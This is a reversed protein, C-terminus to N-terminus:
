LPRERIVAAIVLLAGGVVAMTSVDILKRRVGLMGAQQGPLLLRAVAGAVLAGGITSLGVQVGGLMVIVVGLLTVTLVALFVAGGITRPKRPAISHDLQPLPRPGDTPHGAAQEELEDSEYGDEPDSGAPLVSV